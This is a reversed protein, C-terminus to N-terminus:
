EKNVYLLTDTANMSNYIVPKTTSNTFKLTNTNDKIFVAVEFLILVPQM